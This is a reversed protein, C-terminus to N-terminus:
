RVTFRDHCDRCQHTIQALAELLQGHQDASPEAPMTRALAAFDNAASHFRDGIALFEEPLYQGLGLGPGSEATETAGSADRGAARPVGMEAAAIDAAGGYDRAALASVVGDLAVVHGLMQALFIAEAAPPLEVPQRTPLDQADSTATTLGLGTIAVALLAVARSM